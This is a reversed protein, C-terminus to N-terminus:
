SSRPPDEHLPHISVNNATGPKGWPEGAVVVLSGATGVSGRRALLRVARRVFDARDHTMPIVLPQVGYSLNLQRAVLPDPTAAFLPLQPRFRAMRRVTRGTLTAVLMGRLETDHAALLATVEAVVDAPDWSASPVSSVPAIREFRSAEVEDAIERMM